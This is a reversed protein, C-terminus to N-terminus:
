DKPGIEALLLPKHFVCVSGTSVLRRITEAAFALGFNVAFVFLFIASVCASSAFRVLLPNGLTLVPLLPIGDIRQVSRFHRVDLM